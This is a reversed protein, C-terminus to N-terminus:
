YLINKYRDDRSGLSHSRNYLNTWNIIENSLHFQIESFKVNREADSALHLAGRLCVCCLLVVNKEHRRRRWWILYQRTSVAPHDIRCDNGNSCPTRFYSRIMHICNSAQTEDHPYIWNHRSWRIRQWNVSMGHFHPNYWYLRITYNGICPHSRRHHCVIYVYTFQQRQTANSKPKSQSNLM